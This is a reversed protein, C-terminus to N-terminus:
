DHMLNCLIAEAIWSRVSFQKMLGAEKM